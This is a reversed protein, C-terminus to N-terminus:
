IEVKSFAYQDLGVMSILPQIEKLTRALHPFDKAVLTAIGTNQGMVDIFFRPKGADNTAYITIDAGFGDELKSSIEPAYGAKRISEAIDTVQPDYTPDSVEEFEVGNWQYSNM